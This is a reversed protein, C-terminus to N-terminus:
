KHNISKTKKCFYSFSILWLRIKLAKTQYNKDSLTNPSNDENNYECHKPKHIRRGEEPTEHWVRSCVRFKLSKKNFGRTYIMRIGSVM